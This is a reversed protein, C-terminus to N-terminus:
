AQDGDNIDGVHLSFLAQGGGGLRNASNTVFQILGQLGNHAVDFQQRIIVKGIAGSLFYLLDIGLDLADLLYIPLQQIDGIILAFGVEGCINQVDFLGTRM